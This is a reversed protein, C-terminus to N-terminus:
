QIAKFFRDCMGDGKFCNFNFAVRTAHGIMLDDDLFGFERGDASNDRNDGMVLYKGEPVKWERPPYNVPGSNAYRITHNVGSLDENLVTYGLSQQIKNGSFDTLEVTDTIQEIPTLKVVEGNITMNRNDYYVTDGPIGIVRKIYSTKPDNPYKFVIVDGRKVKRGETIKTNTIPLRMGLEYKNVLVIDGIQLGPKMSSSPIIFPEYLFGRVVVVFLLVWFLDQFFYIVKRPFSTLSQSTINHRANKKQKRTLNKMQGASAALNNKIERYFTVRYIVYSILSVLFLVILIIEFNERLGDLM